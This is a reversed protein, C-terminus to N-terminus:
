LNELQVGHSGGKETQFETGFMSNESIIIYAMVYTNLSMEDGTCWINRQIENHPSHPHSTIYLCHPSSAKDMDLMPWEQIDDWVFPPGFTM